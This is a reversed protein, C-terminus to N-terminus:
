YYTTDTAGGRVYGITPDSAGAGVAEMADPKFASRPKWEVHGDAFLENMGSLAPAGTLNPEGLTPWNFSPGNLGHNYDYAGNGWWRFCRDAMLVRDSKFETDTLEQPRSAQAQWKSVQAFYSYNGAIWLGPLWPTLNLDSLTSPCRWVSSLVMNTQGTQYGPLYPAIKDVSFQGPANTDSIYLSVPYRAGFILPTEMLRGDNDGAYSHLAVGWQRLNSACAAQRAREKAARLAPLLMAALITIIAVVVLLEIL